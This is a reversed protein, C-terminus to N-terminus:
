VVLRRARQGCGSDGAADGHEGGVRPPSVVDETWLFIWIEAVCGRHRQLQVAARGTGYVDACERGRGPNCECGASLVRRGPGRGCGELLLREVATSVPARRDCDGRSVFEGRGR